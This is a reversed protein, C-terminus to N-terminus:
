QRTELARRRTKIRLASSTPCTQGSAPPPPLVQNGFDRMIYQYVSNAMSSPPQRDQSYM